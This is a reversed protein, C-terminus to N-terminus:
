RPVLRDGMPSKKQAREGLPRRDHAANGATGVHLCRPRGHLAQARVHPFLLPGEV